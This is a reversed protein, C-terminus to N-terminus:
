FPRNCLPCSDPMEKELRRIEKRIENYQITKKSTEDVLISVASRGERLSKVDKDLSDIKDLIKYIKEFQIDGIQKLEKKYKRSTEWKSKVAESKQQLELVEQDTEEIESLLLEIEEFPTRNFEELDKKHEQLRSRKERVDVAVISRERLDRELEEYEEIMLEAEDIWDYRKLEERGSELEERTKEISSATDRRDKEAKALITDSLDLNVIKNFFRGIEASSENLLFPQDFQKQFNVDTINLAETIEEPPAGKGVAEFVDDDLIYDNRDKGKLRVISVDDFFLSAYHEKVPRKKKDRNWYSNYSLGTPKNDKVSRIGRLISTKGSKSDGIIVNIGESFDLKTSKHSQYNGLEISKLKKM